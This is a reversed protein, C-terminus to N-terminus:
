DDGTLGLAGSGNKKALVPDEDRSKYANKEKKGKGRLVKETAMKYAVCM